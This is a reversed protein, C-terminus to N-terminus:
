GEELKIYCKESNSRCYIFLYFSNYIGMGTINCIKSNKRAEMDILNGESRSQSIRGSPFHTRESTLM